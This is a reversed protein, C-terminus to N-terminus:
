RARPTQVSTQRVHFVISNSRMLVQGGLDEVAAQMTHTGRPIENLSFSVSRTPLGGLREGDLFIAISHGSRLRPSLSLGVEVQGAVNWLTEENTPQTISLQYRTAPAADSEPEADTATTANSSLPPPTFTQASELEIREAGPRPRDSYHVHGDKDVWRYTEAAAALGAAAILLMLLWLRM